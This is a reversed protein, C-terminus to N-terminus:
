PKAVVVNRGAEQAERLADRLRLLVDGPAEDSRRCVVGVSASVSVSGPAAKAPTRAIARCIEDALGEAQDLDMDPLLLLFEGGSARFATGRDRTREILIEAVSRLVEDGIANGLRENVFGLRDVNVLAVSLQGAGAKALEGDISSSQALRTLPDIPSLLSMRAVELHPAAMTALLVLFREDDEDFFNPRRDVASLVGVLAGSSLMPVGLFSGMAEKMDPRSVFQPHHDADGTCLPRRARAVWGILGEGVNFVSTAERHLSSGYRGAAILATRTPNLLRTSARTAGTLSAAVESVLRLREDVEIRDALRQAFATLRKIRTSASRGRSSM